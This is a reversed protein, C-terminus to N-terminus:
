WQAMSRTRNVKQTRLTEHERKLTSPQGLGLTEAVNGVLEKWRKSVEGQTIGLEKALRTQTTSQIQGQWLKLYGRDPHRRDLDAIAAIASLVLESRELSDFANLEDAITDLLPVDTGPLATDLSACSRHKEKRVLDIIEFRAVTTAWRSFEVVGGQRFKGDRLAQLVKMQAAQAADEWAIASGRTQKRAIREVRRCHLPDILLSEYLHPKGLHPKVTLQSVM